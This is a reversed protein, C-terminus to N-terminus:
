FEANAWELFFEKSSDPSIFESVLTRKVGGSAEFNDMSGKASRFETSSAFKKVRISSVTLNRFTLFSVLDATYGIILGVGYPM